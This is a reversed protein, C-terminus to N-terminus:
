RMEKLSHHRTHDGVKVSPSRIDLQTSWSHRSDRKGEKNLSCFILLDPIFNSILPLISVWLPSLLGFLLSGGRRCQLADYIETRTFRRGGFVENLQLLCFLKNDQSQFSTLLFLRQSQELNISNESESSFGLLSEDRQEIGVLTQCFLSLVFTTDSWSTIESKM